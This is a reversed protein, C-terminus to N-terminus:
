IRLRLGGGGEYATNGRIINNDVQAGDGVFLGGGSRVTDNGEIINGLISFSTNSTLIGGGGDDASNGVILSNSISGITSAAVIGGGYFGATNGEGADGGITSDTINLTGFIVFIAGGDEFAHNDKFTANTITVIGGFSFLVGGSSGTPVDAEGGTVTIDNLSLNGTSSVHFIRFLNTSSTDRAITFDAGELTIESTISPLGNLGNTADAAYNSDNLTIDATLTIIDAEITGNAANIAAILETATDATFNAASVPPIQWAFSLMIMVVLFIAFLRIHRPM